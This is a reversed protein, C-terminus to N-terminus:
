SRTPDGRPAVPPPPLAQAEEEKRPIEKAREVADELWGCEREAREGAYFEGRLAVADEYDDAKGLTGLHYKGEVLKRSLWSSSKKGRWYGLALGRSIARWYRKGKKPKLLSTRSDLKSDSASRPM